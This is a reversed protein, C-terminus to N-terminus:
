RSCSSNLSLGVARRFCEIERMDNIIADATQHDKSHNKSTLRTVVSERLKWGHRRELPMVVALADPYLCCMDNEIEFLGDISSIM